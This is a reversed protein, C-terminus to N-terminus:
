PYDRYYKILFRQWLEDPVHQEWGRVARDHELTMVSSPHFDKTLEITIYSASVLALVILLAFGAKAIPAKLSGWIACISGVLIFVHGLLLHYYQYIKTSLFSPLNFSILIVFGSLILFGLLKDRKRFSIWTGSAAISVVFLRYLALDMM